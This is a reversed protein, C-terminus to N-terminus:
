RRFRGGDSEYERGDAAKRVPAVNVPLRRRMSVTGMWIGSPVVTGTRIIGAM